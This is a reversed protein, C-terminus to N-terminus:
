KSPEAAEAQDDYDCSRMEDVSEAVRGYQRIDLERVEDQDHLFMEVPPNQNMGPALQGPRWSLDLAAKEAEHGMTGEPAHATGPLMTESISKNDQEAM